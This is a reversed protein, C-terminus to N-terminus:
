IKSHIFEKISPDVLKAINEFSQWLRDRDLALKTGALPSCHSLPNQEGSDVQSYTLGSSESWALTSKNESALNLLYVFRVIERQRDYFITLMRESGSFNRAFWFGEDKEAFRIDNERLM